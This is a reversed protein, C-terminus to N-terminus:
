DDDESTDQGIDRIKPRQELPRGYPNLPDTIGPQGIFGTEVQNIFADWEDVKPEPVQPNPDNPDPPPIFKSLLDAANSLSVAGRLIGKLKDVTNGTGVNRFNQARFMAAMELLPMLVDNLDNKDDNDWGKVKVEGAKLMKDLQQEGPKFTFPIKHEIQKGKYGLFEANAAAYDSALLALQKANGAEVMANVTAILNANSESQLVLLMGVIEAISEALNPLSVKKSQDGEQTLDADQINIEQPFQGIQANTQIVSYAIYEALSNIVRTGSNARVLSIPVAAPVPGIRKLILRLLQDNNKCCNMKDKDKDKKKRPPPPIEPQWEPSIWETRQSDVRTTFGDTGDGSLIISEKFDFPFGSELDYGKGSAIFLLGDNMRLNRFRSALLGSFISRNASVQDSSYFITHVGMSPYNIYYVIEGEINLTLTSSPLLPEDSVEGYIAKWEDLTIGRSIAATGNKEQSHSVQFTLRMNPIGTQRDSKYDPFSGEQIQVLDISVRAIERYPNEETESERILSAFSYSYYGILTRGNDRIYPLEEYDNQPDYPQRPQPCTSHRYVLQTPPLRIWFLVPELQVGINCEDLVLEFNYGLPNERDIADWFNACYISNPYRDCDMPDAPENPTHYFPTNAFRVLDRQGQIPEPIEPIEINRRKPKRALSFDNAGKAM